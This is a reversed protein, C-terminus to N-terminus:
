GGFSRGSIGINEPDINLGAKGTLMNDIVFSSDKPRDDIFQGLVALDNPTSDGALMDM